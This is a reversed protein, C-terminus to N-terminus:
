GEKIDRQLNYITTLGRPDAEYSVSDVVYDGSFLDGADRLGVVDRQYARTITLPRMARVRCEFAHERELQRVAQARRRAAAQTHPKLDRKLLLQEVGREGEDSKAELRKGARGRGRAAVVRARGERNEPLKFSLDTDRAVLATKGLELMVVPAVGRVNPERLFVTDGRVFRVLGAERALEGLHDWDTGGDQIMAAHTVSPYGDPMDCRLHGGAIKTEEILRRMIDTDRGKRYKTRARQRMRYGMDYARFTTVSAGRGVGALMGKFIPEGLNEGYGLWVRVTADPIGGANSYRNLMKKQPDNVAWQAESADETTLEVSVRSFLGEHNWSDWLDTAGGLPTVEVKARISLAGM